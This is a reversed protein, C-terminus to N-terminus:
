GGRFFASRGAIAAPYSGDVFCPATKEPGVGDGGAEQALRQDLGAQDGVAGLGEIGVVDVHVLQLHFAVAHDAVIDGLLADGIELGDVKLIAAIGGRDPDGRFLSQRRAPRESLAARQMKLHSRPCIGLILYM